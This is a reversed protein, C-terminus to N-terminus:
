NSNSNTADDGARSLNQVQTGVAAPGSRYFIVPVSAVIDRVFYSQIKASVTVFYSVHITPHITTHYALEPVHLSVRRSDKQEGVCEKGDVMPSMQSNKYGFCDGRGVGAVKTAM